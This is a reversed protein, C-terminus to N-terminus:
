VSVAEEKGEFVAEVHNNTNRVWGKINLESALEAVHSRFFVGQVAGHILIHVRSMKEKM